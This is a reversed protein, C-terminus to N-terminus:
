PWVDPRVGRESWPATSRVLGVCFSSCFAPTGEESLTMSTEGQGVGAREISGTGLVNGEVSSMAGLGALFPQPFHKRSRLRLSRPGGVLRLLPLCACGTVRRAPLGHTPLEPLWVSLSPPHTGFPIKCRSRQAFTRCGRLTFPAEMRARRWGRGHRKM